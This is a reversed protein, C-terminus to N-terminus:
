GARGARNRRTAAARAAPGPPATRGTRLAAGGLLVACAAAVAVAAVGPLARVGVLTVVAGGATAGAAIGLNLVAVGVAGVTAERGPPALRLLRTMFVPALLGVLVGWLGVAATAVVSGAGVLRLAAVAVALAAGVGLLAAGPFRDSLPGSVAIGVLGALGFVLLLLSRARADYGGLEQLLPAVYTYLLFHGTLMLGGALASLVVAPTAARGSGAPVPAPDPLSLARVAPVAIALLGALLGFSVRWGLAAGAAAGLPIGVVGALAPGALVVAVARGVRAPPALGAATSVLLSWFLGHAAAAVVRSGLAWPFSPALATLVTAAALVALVFPLLTARSTRATLRVLLVSTVAVTVAWAAVLLGAVQETVGLDARLELLLSAPLLETTVTAFATGSLVLLAPWPFPKEEDASPM